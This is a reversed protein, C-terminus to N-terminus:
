RGRGELALETEVGWSGPRSRRLRRLFAPGEGMSGTENGFSRTLKRVVGRNWSVLLELQSVDNWGDPRGNSDVIARACLRSERLLLTGVNLLLTVGLSWWRVDCRIGGGGGGGGTGPVGRTM